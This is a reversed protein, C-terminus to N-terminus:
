VQYAIDHNFDYAVGDLVAYPSGADRVQFTVNSGYTVGPDNRLIISQGVVMNMGLTIALLATPTGPLTSVTAYGTTTASTGTKRALYHRIPKTSDYTGFLPTGDFTEFPTRPTQVGLVMLQSGQRTVSVRDALIPM